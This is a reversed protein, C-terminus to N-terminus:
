VDAEAVRNDYADSKPLKPSNDSRTFGSNPGQLSFGLVAQRLSM